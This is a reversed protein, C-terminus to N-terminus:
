LVVDSLGVSQELRENAKTLYPDRCILERTISGSM